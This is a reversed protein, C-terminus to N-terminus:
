ERRGAKKRERERKSVGGFAGKTPGAYRHRPQNDKLATRMIGAHLSRASALINLLPNRM